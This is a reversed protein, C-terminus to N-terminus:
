RNYPLKRSHRKIVNWNDVYDNYASKSSINLTTEDGRSLSGAVWNQSGTWVEHSSRDGRYSGKVLMYKAHTRVENYGDNNHDWRSDYLGILKRRAANRLREAIPISPAGYIISVRCGQRALSLVKDALYNGRSKAWYFMSIRIKTRGYASHCRIKKMDRLTPDTSKSANKMPFFRSIYRGDKIERKGDGAKTYETMERHITNYYAYSVPRGVMTFLDNWGNLAGGKNLNSSSVMVVDRARGTKSFAYFKSHMNGGAGRCSGACKKAYSKDDGWTASEDTPADLSEILEERTFPRTRADPKPRGCNRTRTNGNKRPNDGNLKEILRRSNRNDIDGDLIVRVSIGRRCASILRDVSRSRDLLYTSILIVPRAKGADAKYRPVEHIAKEVHNVLRWNAKSSGWPNPTNFMAGDRPQYAQAAPAWILSLTLLAVLVGILKKPM